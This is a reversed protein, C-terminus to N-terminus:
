GGRQRGGLGMERCCHDLPRSPKVAFALQYLCGSSEFFGYGGAEM